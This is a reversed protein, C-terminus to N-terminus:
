IGTKIIRKVNKQFRARPLMVRHACKMCRIRFDMGIRLVEWEHCGCPHPKKMYVIDGIQYDKQNAIM